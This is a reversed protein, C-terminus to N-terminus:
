VDQYPPPTDGEENVDPEGQGSTQGRLLKEREERELRKKEDEASEYRKPVADSSSESTEVVGPTASPVKSFYSGTVPRPSTVPVAVSSSTSPIPAPQIPEVAPNIPSGKTAATSLNTSSSLDPTPVPVPSDVASTTPPIATSGSDQTSVPVSAPAASPKADSSSDHSPEFSGGPPPSAPDTQREATNIRKLVESHTEGFSQTHSRDLNAGASVTLTADGPTWHDLSYQLSARITGTEDKSAYPREPSPPVSPLVAVLSEAAQAVLSLKEGYERLAQFKLLESEKLAKRLLIEHEKELPEDDKEAKALQEKVEAIRKEAGKEQGHELREIQIKLGARVNRRPTLTAENDRLAKLPARATDLKGALSGSLSGVVYNLFGLRDSVDKVDSQEHQGWTFLEKSQAQSDRSLSEFDIAIGKEQTIIKQVPGTTSYNQQLQRLQHQIQGLTVNKQNSGSDTAPAGTLSSPLHQSLPSDKLATQAKDAFSTLFGPVPM